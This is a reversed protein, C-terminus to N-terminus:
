LYNFVFLIFPFVKVQFCTPTFHECSIHPLPRTDSFMVPGPTYTRLETCFGAPGRLSRSHTGAGLTPSFSTGLSLSYVLTGATPSFSTGPGLSYVLTGAMPSFGTGPGLSYILTGAMPSFSTGLGLSYILTGAMPSFGTGPGLCYITYRLM